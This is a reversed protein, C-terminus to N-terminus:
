YVDRVRFSVVTVQSMRSFILIERKIEKWSTYKDDNETLLQDVVLQVAAEHEQKTQAFDTQIYYIIGNFEPILGNPVEGHTTTIKFNFCADQDM